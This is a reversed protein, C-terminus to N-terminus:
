EEMAFLLLRRRRRLNAGLRVRLFYPFPPFSFSKIIIQCQLSRLFTKVFNNRKPFTKKDNEKEKFM